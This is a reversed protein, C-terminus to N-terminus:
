AYVAASERVQPQTGLNLAPVMYDPPRVDFLSLVTPAVAELPVPQQEVHHQRSATRIWLVGIPHHIGSKGTELPYFIESFSARQIGGEIPSDPPVADHRACSAFIREDELRMDLIERGDVTLARLRRHASEAQAATSFELYFQQSMVPTARLNENIGVLETLAEFRRPRYFIPASAGAPQQSLATTLIL